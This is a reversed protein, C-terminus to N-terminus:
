RVSGLPGRLRTSLSGAIGVDYEGVIGEAFISAIVEYGEATPHLNDNGICPFSVAFPLRGGQASFGVTSLGMCSSSSSLGSFVDVLRVGNSSAIARITDNLVALRAPVPDESGVPRFPPLTAIMADAGRSLVEEIMGDLAASTEALSYDPSRLDNTGEMVLVVEPRAADLQAEIRNLGAAVREGSLGANVVDITQVLYRSALLLQLQFPYSKSPELVTTVPDTTVGETLSDGFALFTTKALRPPRLVRISFSCAATQGLDDSATCRVQTTGVPLATGSEPSCAASVPVQGGSTRPPAYEIRTDTASLAQVTQNAPCAVSLVGVKDPPLTTPTTPLTTTEQCGGAWLCLSLAVVCRYGFRM